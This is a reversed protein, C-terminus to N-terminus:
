KFFELVQKNYESQSMINRQDFNIYPVYFGQKKINKMKKKLINNKILDSKLLTNNRSNALYGCINKHFNKNLFPVRIEISNTMSAWDVDRLLRDKCYFKLELLTIKLRDPCDLKIIENIEHNINRDELIEKFNSFDEISSSSSRKCFYLNELTNATKIFLNAKEKNFYNLIIKKLFINLNQNKILKNFTIFLPLIKFTDYTGFYEDGGIGSLAVKINNKKILYSALFTNLGDVTPQDM